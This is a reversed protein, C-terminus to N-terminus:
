RQPFLAAFAAAGTEFDLLTEDSEAPPSFWEFGFDRPTTKAGWMNATASLELRLREDEARGGWPQRQYVRQWWNWEAGDM